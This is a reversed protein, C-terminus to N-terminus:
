NLVCAPILSLFAFFILISKRTLIGVLAVTAAGLFILGIPLLVAHIAAVDASTLKYLIFQDLWQPYAVSFLCIAAILAGVGMLAWGSQRVTHAMRRQHKFAQIVTRAILIGLAIATTLIYHPLKASSVSFFLIVVTGWTVCLRDARTLHTRQKYCAWLTGPLLLSWYLMAVLTVPLYYYFPHAHHFVTTTFRLLSERVLGYYPFDPQLIATGIFWPLVIICFILINPWAILRKLAGRKHELRNFIILVLCPVIFGVPGKVLTALGMQSAALLWLQRQRKRTIEDSEAFYGAFIATCMFFALTMDFIVYRGLVFFMPITSIIAIAIASTYQDYERRCFYWVLILIGFAFLVSPIRAALASHGFASLSLSVAKFFFAPKELSPIGNYTPLLWNGTQQMEFATSANRGEDPNQLPMQGLHWCLMFSALLFALIVLISSYREHKM